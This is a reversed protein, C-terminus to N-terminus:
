LGRPQLSNTVTPLLTRRKTGARVIKSVKLQPLIWAVWIRGKLPYLGTTNLVNWPNHFWWWWRTRSHEWWKLFCLCMLLWEQRNGGLGQCGKIWKRNRYNAEEPCKMHSGYVIHGKTDPKQWLIGKWHMWVLAYQYYTMRKHSFLVGNFPHAGNQKGM